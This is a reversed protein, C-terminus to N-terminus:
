SEEEPGSGLLADATVQMHGLHQYLEELVHLVLAGDNRDTGPMFDRFPDYPLKKYMHPAIALGPSNGRGITYGDPTAKAILEVGLM